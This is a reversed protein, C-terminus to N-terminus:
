PIPTCRLDKVMDSFRSPLASCIARELFKALTSGRKLYGSLVMTEILKLCSWARGYGFTHSVQQASPIALTGVSLLWRRLSMSGDVRVYDARGNPAGEM